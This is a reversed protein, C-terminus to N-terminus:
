TVSMGYECHMTDGNEFVVAPGDLRHLREGLLWCLVGSDELSVRYNSSGLFLKLSGPYKM